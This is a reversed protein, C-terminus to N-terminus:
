LVTDFLSMGRVINEDMRCSDMFEEFSIVGDKNMDMKQFVQEVHEKASLEDIAPQTFRGMMEYIAGIIESMEDKTIIGDGNVDYLNFAWQLREPLSGRALVSLGMIFEEFSISGNRDHDFTNFVYHAYASADGQPFFQAYIEKFTEENVIGTPCEQKFGRYMIQLEKKSFKTNKCLVDLGEPKYRVVQMELDDIDHDMTGTQAKSASGTSTSSQLRRRSSGRRVLKKERVNWLGQARVLLQGM